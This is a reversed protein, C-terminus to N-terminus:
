HISFELKIPGHTMVLGADEGAENSTKSAYYIVHSKKDKKQGLAAGIAYDSTDCM